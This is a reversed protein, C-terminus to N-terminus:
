QQERAAAATARRGKPLLHGSPGSSPAKSLAPALNGRALEALHSATAREVSHGHIADRVRGYTM